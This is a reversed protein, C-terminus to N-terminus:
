EASPRMQQTVRRDGRPAGRRTEREGGARRDAGRPSLAYEPGGTQTVLTKVQDPEAAILQKARLDFLGKAMDKSATRTIQYLPEQPTNEAYAAASERPDLCLAVTRDTVDERLPM